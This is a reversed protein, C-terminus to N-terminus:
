LFPQQINHVSFPDISRSRSPSMYRIDSAVSRASDSDGSSLRSLLARERSLVFAVPSPPRRSLFLRPSAKEHTGLQRASTIPHEAVRQASTCRSSSCLTSAEEGHWDGSAHALGGIVTVAGRVLLYSIGITNAKAKETEADRERKTGAPRGAQGQSRTDM